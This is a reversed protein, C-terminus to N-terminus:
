KEESNQEGQQGIGELEKPCSPLEWPLQNYERDRISECM